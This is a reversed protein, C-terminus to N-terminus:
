PVPKGIFDALASEIERFVTDWDGDAEQRFLRVTPYWPSDARDFMWRWDPVYQLAVFTPVGLAGALHSISTDNTIVLDVCTMVAATDVFADPGADLDDFSEITMGQPLSKLDGEGDGKQLSILHVGPLKSIAEFCTVPFIRSQQGKLHTLSGSWCVGIKFGDGGLRDRWKQVLAAEPSIYPVKAPITQVITGCTLPLSMMPVHYDYALAPDDLNVFTLPFEPSSLLRQLKPQANLLIRAGARHLLELYRFFQITDGFGHEFHVLVTKGRADELSPLRPKPFVRNGTMEVIKLRWEFERWGDEMNGLGLETIAKNFHAQAFGPNVAIARNFSELADQPRKIGNLVSGRNCHGEAYDPNLALAKDHCTLADELRYLYQLATGRNSWAEAYDPTLAIAKDYSALAQQFNELDNLVNGRNCWAQAYDPKLAIARDYSAIAEDLRKLETLAKGRNYYAQAYNPNLEVAKDYNALAEQWRKLDYLANGRNSHGAAYNPKLEIARTCSALAGDAHGLKQLANGRNSWAEAFDPKLAIATDYSALAEAFRGLGYFANGRNYHAEAFDPKLGITQDSVALAEDHRDLRNLAAGRCADAAAIRPNIRVAEAILTVARELNGMQYAVGGLCHLAAVHTKDAALVAEYIRAAEALRGQKHLALGAQFKAQVPNPQVPASRDKLSLHRSASKRWGADL